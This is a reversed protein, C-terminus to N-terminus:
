SSQRERGEKRKRKSIYFYIERGRREKQMIGMEVLRNLYGSELARARKTEASIMEATARGLRDLVLVTQRLHYPLGLLEEVTLSWKGGIGLEVYSPPRGSIM